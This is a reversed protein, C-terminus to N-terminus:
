PVTTIQRNQMAHELLLFSTPLFEYDSPAHHIAAPPTLQLIALLVSEPLDFEFCAAPPSGPHSVAFWEARRREITAWFEASGNWAAAHQQNVGNYFLDDASTRDTGHHLRILRQRESGESEPASTM